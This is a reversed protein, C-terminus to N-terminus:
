NVTKVSYINGKKIGSELEEIVCNFCAQNLTWLSSDVCMKSKEFNLQQKVFKSYCKLHYKGESAVLDSIGSLRYQLLLHNKSGKIIKESTELTQVQNLTGAPEQCFICKDWQM